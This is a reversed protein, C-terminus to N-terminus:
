ITLSVQQFSQVSLSAALCSNINMAFRTARADIIRKQQSYAETLKEMKTTGRLLLKQHAEIEKWDVGVSTLHDVVGASLEPRLALCSNINMVFRTARADVIRKQSNAEEQELGRLAARLANALTKSQKPPM